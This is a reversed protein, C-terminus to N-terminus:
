FAFQFRTQFVDLSGDYLDHEIDALVYNLQIKMYKSLYWNLGFTVNDEEGGRLVLGDNLDVTSYRAALELAGWGREEGTLRFPRHPEVGSFVGRSLAYPRHEGTLLWGAQVYYGDYDRDGELWPEVKALTYESEFWVPGIAGALEADWLEVDDALYPGTDVFRWQSLRAEPYGRFRVAGDPNRRSYGLGLHLLQRAEKDYWPLGTIRGTLSFSGDDAGFAYDNTDRFVGAAYTMRNDLFPNSLMVGTKRSPAFLNTLPRELFVLDSSSTLEAMQFPEQMQGVQVSGVYPINEVGIYLDRFDADGGEFDYQAKFYLTDYMEGTLNIRARRVEAGDETDFFRGAELVPDWLFELDRDQDFWAFDIQIRSGLRLRFDSDWIEFFLGDQWYALPRDDPTKPGEVPVVRDPSVAPAEVPSPAAEPPPATLVELEEVRQQLTEVQQRLAEIAKMLEAKEGAQAGAPLCAALAGAMIVCYGAWRKM